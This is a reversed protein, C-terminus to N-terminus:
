GIDPMCTSALLPLPPVSIKVKRMLNLPMIHCILITRNVTSDKKPIIFSPSVWESEQQHVLVGLKFVLDLECKSLHIGPMPYPHVHVPEADPDIDIHVQCHPYLSLSGHFLTDAKAM